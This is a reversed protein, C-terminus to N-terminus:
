SKVKSAFKREPVPSRPPPPRSPPGPRAPVAAYTPAAVKEVIVEVDAYLPM